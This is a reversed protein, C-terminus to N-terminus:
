SSQLPMLNVTVGSPLSYIDTVSLVLAYLPFRNFFMIVTWLGLQILLVALWLLMFCVYFVFVTPLLFVFLALFVAGLLLQELDFPHADVRERLVNYKKGRFLLFLTYLNSTNTNWLRTVGVYVFFIHFFVISLLDIIFALEHAPELLKSRDPFYHRRIQRPEQEDSVRGPKGDAMGGYVALC